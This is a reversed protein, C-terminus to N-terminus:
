SYRGDQLHSTHPKEWFGVADQRPIVYYSYTSGHSGLIGCFIQLVCIDKEHLTTKVIKYLTCWSLVKQVKQVGYYCASGSNLRNKVEVKQNTVTTELYKFNKV